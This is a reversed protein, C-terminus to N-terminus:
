HTHFPQVGVRAQKSVQGAMRLHLDMARQRQGPISVREPPREQRMCQMVLFLVQVPLCGLIYTM